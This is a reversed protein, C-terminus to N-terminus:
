EYSLRQYLIELELGVVLAWKEGDICTTRKQVCLNKRKTKPCM